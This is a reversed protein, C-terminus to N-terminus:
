CAVTSDWGVQVLLHRHEFHQAVNKRLDKSVNLMSAAELDDIDMGAAFSDMVETDLQLRYKSRASHGVHWMNVYFGKRIQVFWDGVPWERFISRTHTGYVKEGSILYLVSGQRSFRAFLITYLVVQPRPDKPAAFSLPIPGASAEPPIAKVEEDEKRTYHRLVFRVVGSVIRDILRLFLADGPRRYVMAAYGGVCALFIWLGSKLYGAQWLTLQQQMFVIHLMSLHLLVIPLIAVAFYGVDYWGHREHLRQDIRFVFFFYYSLSIWVIYGWLLAITVIWFLWFSPASLYHGFRWFKTNTNILYAVVVSGVLTKAALARM